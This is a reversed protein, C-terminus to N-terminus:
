NTMWDIRLDWTECGPDLQQLKYHGEVLDNVTANFRAATSGKSYTFDGDVQTVAIEVRSCPADAPTNWAFRYRGSVLAHTQEPDDSSSQRATKAFVAPSSAATGPSAVEAGPSGGSTSTAAPGAPSPQAPPTPATDAGGCAAAVLASALIPAGAIRRM